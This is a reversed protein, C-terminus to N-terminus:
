GKDNKRDRRDHRLDRRDNRADLDQDALHLTKDSFIFVVRMDPESHPKPATRITEYM